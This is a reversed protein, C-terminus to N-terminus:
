KKGFLNDALSKGLSNAASSFFSNVGSELASKNRGGMANALMSTNDQNAALNVYQENSIGFKKMANQAEMKGKWQSVGYYKVIFYTAIIVIVSIIFGAIVPIFNTKRQKEEEEDQKKRNAMFHVIITVILCIIAVIITLLIANRGSCFYATNEDMFAAQVSCKPYILNILSM